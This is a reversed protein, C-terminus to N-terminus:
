EYEFDSEPAAAKTSKVDKAGPAILPMYHDFVAKWQASLSSDPEGTILKNYRSHLGNTIINQGLAPSLTGKQVAMDFLGSLDQAHDRTPEVKLTNRDLIPPITIIVNGFDNLVNVPMYPTGAIVYWQEMLEDHNEKSKGSFLPLFYTVFVNEPVSRTAEPEIQQFLKKLDNTRRVLDKSAASSLPDNQEAM